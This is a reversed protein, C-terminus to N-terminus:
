RVGSGALVSMHQKKRWSAYKRRLDSSKMALFVQADTIGLSACFKQGQSPLCHLNDEPSNGSVSGSNRPSLVEDGHDELGIEEATRRIIRKWMSVTTVPGNSALPIM